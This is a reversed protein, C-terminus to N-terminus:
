AFNSVKKSVKKKSKTSGTSIECDKIFDDCAQENCLAGINLKGDSLKNAITDADSKESEESFYHEVAYEVAEHFKYGCSELSIKAHSHTIWPLTMMLHEIEEEQYASSYSNNSNNISSSIIIPNVEKDKAKATQHLANYHYEGHYSLYIAVAEDTIDPASIVWRPAELQYVFIIANFCCSAAYLEQHGGWECNTRMRSIYDDFPEDDEIFLQFHDSHKIMYDVIKQRIEAHRNVTGFLQDSLARFMCNGSM